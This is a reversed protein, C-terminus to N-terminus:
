PNLRITSIYLFFFGAAFLFFRPRANERAIL